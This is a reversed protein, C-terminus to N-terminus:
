PRSSGPNRRPRHKRAVNCLIELRQEPRLVHVGALHKAMCRVKTGSGVRLKVLCIPCVVVAFASPRSPKSQNSKPPSSCAAPDEAANEPMAGPLIAEKHRPVINLPRHVRPGPEILQLRYEGLGGCRPCNENRGGCSCPKTGGEFGSERAEPTKTTTHRGTGHGEGAQTAVPPIGVRPSRENARYKLWVREYYFAADTEGHCTTVFHWQRDDAARLTGNALSLLTTGYRVLLAWERDTFADRDANPVFPAQKPHEDHSTEVM